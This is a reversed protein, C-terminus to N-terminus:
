VLAGRILAPQHQASDAGFQLAAFVAAPHRSSAQAQGAPMLAIGGRQQAPPTAIVSM